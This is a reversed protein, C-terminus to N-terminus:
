QIIFDSFYVAMVDDKGLAKNVKTKVEEKLARKGEPTMLEAATKASLIAMLQDEIIPTNGRMEKILEDQKKKYEEGKPLPKGSHDAIELVVTTKLYRLMGQDALNVIREKLPLMMGDEREEAKAAKGPAADKKATASAAFPLSDGLVQGAGVSAAVGLVLGLALLVIKGKLLKM